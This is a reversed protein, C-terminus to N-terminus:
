MPHLKLDARLWIKSVSIVRALSRALSRVLSRVLALLWLSPLVPALPRSHPLM